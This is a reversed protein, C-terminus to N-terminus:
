PQNRGRFWALLAPLFILDGLLAGLLGVSILLAFLRNTPVQSFVVISYGAVLVITTVGVASGVKLFARRLAARAGDGAALELRYRSLFHITDDVALGLLVTFLVATVMQLSRGIWVVLAGVLALPFVNPLLSILGLRLSRFEVAIVGFIILAAIGLGRALDVIMRNVNRRAVVDTGTLYVRVDPHREEVAALDRELGEVLPEMVEYGFDCVRAVVVSRRLDERLFRATLSSPLTRLLGARGDGSGPLAEFLGVASIPRSLDDKSALVAEVDRIAALVAPSDFTGHEWEVLAYVPLLGGFAEECHRLAQFAENDHPVAETLRNEPVLRTCVAVLVVATAIGALGVARPRATVADILRTGGAALPASGRVAKREGLDSMCSAILPLSTIVTVFVVLVGISAFIGFNRIMPVSGVTLSGFGVATTISTLFCPLGLTRIAHQAAEVPSRGAARERRMDIMLHVSDTFAILIFLVPLIMGLLDIEGGFLGIGGLVWLSGLLTPVTTALCARVNRFLFLAVLFCVISGAVMFLRQERQITAFIEVRFVPIGTVRARVGPAEDAWAAFARIDDVIPEIEEVALSGGALRLVLLATRGDASILSGGVLPHEQARARAADREEASAGAAPLLPRPRLGDGFALVGAISHVSEIGEIEGARRGAERLLEAREDSFWDDAELVVVADNDDSGFEDYLAELRAYDADESLFIGRPLDDFGLRTLGFGALLTALVLFAAVTGRRRAFFDAYRRMELFCGPDM